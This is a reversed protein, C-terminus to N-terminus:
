AAGRALSMVRGIVTGKTLVVLVVVLVVVLGLTGSIGLGSFIGGAVNGATKGAEKAVTGVAQGFVAPAEKISTLLIDLNSTQPTYHATGEIGAIVVYARQVKDRGAAWETAFPAAASVREIQKYWRELEGRVINLQNKATREQEDTLREAVKYYPSMATLAAGIAGRVQGATKVGNLARSIATLEADTV